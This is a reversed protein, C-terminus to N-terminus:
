MKIQITLVFFKLDCITADAVLKDVQLDKNLTFAAQRQVGPDPPTAPPAVSVIPLAPVGPDPPTAPPAEFVIPLAPVVPQIDISM